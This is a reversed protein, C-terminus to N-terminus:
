TGECIGHRETCVSLGLRTIADIFKFHLVSARTNPLSISNHVIRLISLLAADLFPMECENASTQIFYCLQLCCPVNRLTKVEVADTTIM